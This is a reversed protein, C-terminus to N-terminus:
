VFKCEQGQLRHNGQSQPGDGGVEEVRVRRLILQQDIFHSFAEIFLHSILFGERVDVRLGGM